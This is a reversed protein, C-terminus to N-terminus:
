RDVHISTRLGLPFAETPTKEFRVIVELVRTDIRARPDDDRVTKRGLENTIRVVRVPFRRDGYADATAYALQGVSIAAIDAEDFEARIELQRVDALTVVPTPQMTTVLAGIEATRRLIMGATPARLVTQDLAVKAADLEAQALTIAAAAEDISETRTGRALSAYRATAANAQAVAVRAAAGDADVISDAVAGAKGLRESRAHEDSRHKAAALAADVEAKAAALDEKRPGRRALLHRAKAQALGAEAAAVRARALRDDLRAIVQNATVTDGEDVLIEVIRGRRAPM